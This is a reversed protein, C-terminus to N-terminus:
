ASEQADGNLMAMFKKRPILIRNGIRLSPITGERVAAYAQNIGIGAIVAAEGVNLTPKQEEM